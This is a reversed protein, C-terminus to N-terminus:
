HSALKGSSCQSPTIGVQRKFAAAFHGLHSYGVLNAVEAVSLDGARLLQEAQEIRLYTIYGIVTTDFLRRFGRQLTRDSIQVQKALEVISPPDKYTLDLIDKAHYIRDITPSKLKSAKPCNQETSVAELQLALLELVKGQLYIKKIAGRFPANIIQKVITGILPTVQPFFSNKPQNSNLLLKVLDERKSALDPFLEILKQPDVELNIGVIPHSRSYYRKQPKHYNERFARSIGAGSFYSKEGGLTPYIDFDIFGSALVVLQIPHMREPVNLTMEQCYHWNWIYLYVGSM